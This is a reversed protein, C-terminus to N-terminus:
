VRQAIAHLLRQWAPDTPEGRWTTLDLTHIHLFESPLQCRRIFVPVLASNNLGYRAEQWVWESASAFPSWLVLVVKSVTLQRVIDDEWRTAAEIRDDWWVSFGAAKLEEVIVFASDQDERAYSVFVDRSKENATTLDEKTPLPAAELPPMEWGMLFTKTTEFDHKPADPLHLSLAHLLRLRLKPTPLHGIHSRRFQAGVRDTFRKQSEPSNGDAILEAIFTFLVDQLPDVNLRKTGLAVAAVSVLFAISILAIIIM